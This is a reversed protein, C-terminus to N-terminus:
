HRQSGGHRAELDERVPEITSRDSAGARTIRYERSVKGALYEMDRSRDFEGSQVLLLVQRGFSPAFKLINARHGVDLRGFPTDMIVPAERTACRNLAGILSLALVQESGASRQHITRGEKNTLVLGYQPTIRLREYDQENSLM